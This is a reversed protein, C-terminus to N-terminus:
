CAPSESFGEARRSADPCTNEVGVRLRSRIALTRADLPPGRGTRPSLPRGCAAVGQVSAAAEPGASSGSGGAGVSGPELVSLLAGMMSPVGFVKALSAEFAGSSMADSMRKSTDLAVLRVLQQDRRHKEVYEGLALAALTAPLVGRGQAIASFEASLAPALKVRLEETRRAVSKEM